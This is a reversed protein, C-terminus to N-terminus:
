CVYKGPQVLCSPHRGRGAERFVFGLCRLDDKLDADM